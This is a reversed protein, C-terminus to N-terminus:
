ADGGGIGVSIFPKLALLSERVEALALDEPFGREGKLFALLKLGKEGIKDSCQDRFTQIQQRLGSLSKPPMSKQDGLGLLCVTSHLNRWEYVLEEHQKRCGELMQELLQRAEVLPFGKLTEELKDLHEPFQARLVSVVDATAKIGAWLDAVTLEAPVNIGLELLLAVATTKEEIEGLKDPDQVGQAVLEDRHGQGIPVLLLRKYRELAGKVATLKATAGAAGTALWRSLAEKGTVYPKLDSCGSGIDGVLAAISDTTDSDDLVEGDLRNVEVGAAELRSRNRARVPTRLWEELRELHIEICPKTWPGSFAPVGDRQKEELRLVRDQLRKGRRELEDIEITAAHLRTLLDAPETDM